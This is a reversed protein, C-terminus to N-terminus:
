GAATAALNASRIFRILLEGVTTARSVADVFPPWGALDLREGVHVGLYPDDVARAADELFRHIVIPPVFVNPDLVTERVLANGMLIADADAGLRDLEEVFPMILGLRVLPLLPKGTPKDNKEPNLM